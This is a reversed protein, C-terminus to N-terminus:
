RKAPLYERKKSKWGTKILEIIRETQYIRTKYKLYNQKADSYKGRRSQNEFMQIQSEGLHYGLHRIETKLLNIIEQKTEDM